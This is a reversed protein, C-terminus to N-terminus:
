KKTGIFVRNNTLKKYFRKKEVVLASEWFNKSVRSGACVCLM